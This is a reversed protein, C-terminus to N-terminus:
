SLTGGDVRIDEGTIHLGDISAVMAVVGAVTEPGKSGTLSMARALLAHDMGEPFDVKATMNTNIEGPCICNARVGRKAYEVAISRTFALVAGKSASYAAGNALGSLAATSAANVINGQTSILHPLVARALMFTGTINVNIIKQWNDLTLEHTHDFRLMGAMHVLVDIQKFYEVCSAVADNVAQENSIDCVQVVHNVGQQDLQASLDNLGTENVDLAFVNAGESALRIACAMGIGSGAGTVIVVKNEFRDM